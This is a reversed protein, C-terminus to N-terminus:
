ALKETYEFNVGNLIGHMHISFVLLALFIYTITQSIGPIFMIVLNVIFLVVMAVDAIRAAPNSFFRLFGPRNNKAKEKRRKDRSANREFEKRHKSIVYLLVYGAILCGWFLIALLVTVVARFASADYSGFSVFCLTLSSVALLVIVARMLHIDKKLGELEM